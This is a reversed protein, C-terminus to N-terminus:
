PAKYPLGKDCADRLDDYTYMGDSHRDSWYFQLAYRGVKKWTTLSIESIDGTVRVSDAAHGGRCSACPCERRLHLLDYVCERGDKWLIYLKTEDHRIQDPIRDLM